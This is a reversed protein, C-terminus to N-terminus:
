DRYVSSPIETASTVLKRITSRDPKLNATLPFDDFVHIEAPQMYQPLERACVHRIAFDYDEHSSKPKVALAIRQGLVSDPMGVAVVHEVLGSEKVAEEIETPSIRYGSCKLMNDSRDVFYLLGSQDRRVLDGSWVAM